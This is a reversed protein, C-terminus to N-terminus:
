VLMTGSIKVEFVLELIWRMTFMAMNLFTSFMAKKLNNKAGIKQMM